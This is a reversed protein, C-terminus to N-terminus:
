NINPLARFLDSRRRTRVRFNDRCTRKSIGSRPRRNNHLGAASKFGDFFLHRGAQCIFKPFQLMPSRRPPPIALGDSTETNRRGPAAEPPVSVIYAMKSCSSAKQQVSGGKAHRWAGGSQECGSGAINTGNRAAVAIPGTALKM